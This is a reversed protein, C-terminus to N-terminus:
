PRAPRSGATVEAAIEAVTPGGLLLELDVAVGCADEIEHALLTSTASDIGYASVPIGPDVDQPSLELLRALLGAVLATAEEETPAATASRPSPTM